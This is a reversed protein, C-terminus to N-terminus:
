PEVRHFTLPGLVSPSVGLLTAPVGRHRVQAYRSAHRWEGKTGPYDAPDDAVSQALWAEFREMPVRTTWGGPVPRAHFWYRRRSPQGADAPDPELYLLVADGDREVSPPAQVGPM